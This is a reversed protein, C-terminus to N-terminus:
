IPNYVFHFLSCIFAFVVFFWLAIQAPLSSQLLGVCLNELVGLRRLIM